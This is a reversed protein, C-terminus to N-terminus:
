QGDRDAINVSSASMLVPLSISDTGEGDGRSELGRPNPMQISDPKESRENSITM